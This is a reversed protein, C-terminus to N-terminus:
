LSREEIEGDAEELFIWIPGGTLAPLCTLGRSLNVTPVQCSYGVSTVALTLMIVFSHSLLTVESVAVARWLHRILLVRRAYIYVDDLNTGIKTM